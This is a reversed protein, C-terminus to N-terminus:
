LLGVNAHAPVGQLENYAPMIIAPDADAIAKRFPVLYQARLTRESMDAPSINLGGQPTGHVFHKLTAYVRDSALPRKRGQLGHVAAVGMAAVHYPDEGFMKEVCGFRPDKALDIVPTLAYTTGRVRAERAAVTFVEEVLAADWPTIMGGTSQVTQRKFSLLCPMPVM